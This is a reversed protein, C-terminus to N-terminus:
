VPCAVGLKIKDVSSHQHVAELVISSEELAAKVVDFGASEEFHLIDPDWIATVIAGQGRCGGELSVTLQNKLGALLHTATSINCLHVLLKHLFSPEDVHNLNDVLPWGSAWPGQICPFRLMAATSCDGLTALTPWPGKSLLARSTVQPRPLIGQQPESPNSSGCCGRKSASTSQTRACAPSNAFSPIHSSGRSILPFDNTENRHVRNISNQSESQSTRSVLNICLRRSLRITM